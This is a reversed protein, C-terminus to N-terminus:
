KLMSYLWWCIKDVALGCTLIALNKILIGFIEEYSLNAGARKWITQGVGLITNFVVMGILVVKAFSVVEDMVNRITTTAGGLTANCTALTPYLVEKVTFGTIIATSALTLCVYTRLRKDKLVKGAFNNLDRKERSSYKYITKHNKIVSIEM